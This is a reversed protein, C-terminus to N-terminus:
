RSTMRARVARYGGRMRMQTRLSGDRSLRSRRPRLPSREGRLLVVRMNQGSVLNPAAHRSPPRFKVRTTSHIRKRAIYITSGCTCWWCTPATRRASSSSLSAPRLIPAWSANDSARRASARRTRRARAPSWSAPAAECRTTTHKIKIKKFAEDEDENRTEQQSYSSARTKPSILETSCQGRDSSPTRAGMTPPHHPRWERRRVSAIFGRAPNQHVVNRPSSEVLRHVLLPALKHRPWGRYSTIVHM